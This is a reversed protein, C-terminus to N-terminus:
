ESESGKIFNERNIVFTLAQIRIDKYKLYMQVLQEKDAESYDIEDDSINEVELTMRAFLQADEKSVEKPTRNDKKNDSRLAKRQFSTWTNSDPGKLKIRLPKQQEEDAYAHEDTGPITLHLWEGSESVSETDFQKLINM